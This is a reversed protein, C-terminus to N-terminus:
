RLRQAEEQVARDVEILAEELQRDDLEGRERRLKLRGITELLAAARKADAVDATDGSIPDSRVAAAIAIVHEAAHDGTAPDATGTPESRLVVARAPVGHRMLHRYQPLLRSL